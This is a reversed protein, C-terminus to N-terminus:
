SFSELSVKGDEGQLSSTKRSLKPDAMHEAVRQQSIQMMELVDQQLKDTPPQFGFDIKEKKEKHQKPKQKASQKKQINGLNELQANTEKAFKKIDAKKPLFCAFDEESFQYSPRFLGAFNEAQANQSAKLIEQWHNLPGQEDSSDDMDINKRKLHNKAKRVM